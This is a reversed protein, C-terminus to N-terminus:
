WGGRGMERRVEEMREITKAELEEHGMLQAIELVERYREIAADGVDAESARALIQRLVTAAAVEHKCPDRWSPCNCRHQLAGGESWLAVEYDGTPGSVVTSVSELTGSFGSVRAERAYRTGQRMAQGRVDAVFRDIISPTIM